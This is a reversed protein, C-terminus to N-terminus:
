KKEGLIESLSETMKKVSDQWERIEMCAKELEIALVRCRREAKLRATSVIAWDAKLQRHEEEAQNIRSQLIDLCTIIFKNDYDAKQNCLYNRICVFLETDDMDRITNKNVEM